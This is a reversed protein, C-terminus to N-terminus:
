FNRIFQMLIGERLTSCIHIVQVAGRHVICRFLADNRNHKAGHLDIHELVHRIFSPLVSSLCLFLEFERECM